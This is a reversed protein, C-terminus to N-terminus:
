RVKTNALKEVQAKVDPNNHGRRVNQAQHPHDPQVNVAVQPIDLPHADEPVVPLTPNQSLHTVRHVTKDKRGLVLSFIAEREQM